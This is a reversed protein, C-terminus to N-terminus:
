AGGGDFLTEDEFLLVAPAEPRTAEAYSCPICLFYRRAGDEWVGLGSDIANGCGQCHGSGIWGKFQRTV